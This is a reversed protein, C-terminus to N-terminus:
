DITAVRRARSRRAQSRGLDIVNGGGSWTASYPEFGEAVAMEGLRDIRASTTETNAGLGRIRGNAVNESSYRSDLTVAVADLDDFLDAYTNHRLDRLTM